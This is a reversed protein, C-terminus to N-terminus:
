SELKKAAEEILYAEIEDGEKIDNFNEIGIGCELGVVVERADDKLRKLSAIRGEYVITGDRTLRIKASRRIVGDEVVCGAINGVKSVKFVQKVRARGLYKETKVPELLGEITKKINDLVEYIISHIRIEIGEQEALKQAKGEATVNFGLIVARSAQALIVDSETIGGTAQHLIKVTVENTSLKKLSDVLAEVSGAVDAKVVLPLEHTEGASIQKQLEELTLKVSKGLKEAREKAQRTEVVKKVDRENNVAFLEDGAAPTADLGLIEVPKSPGAEEVLTGDAQMMARVRGYTFGSVVYDGRRLIGGQVLVTAVVGRGKELRSEIITGRGLGSFNGKLEKVEATLLIMELLQDIGVGSKASTNVCIVDGGWEEPVLGHETLSRKVKEPDAQPKDIKNVAVIIPVEAAKAHDIAEITQPMIGDDAAVVLIVIDTVKAGRARMQTFAAHGPTDIFTINGKPLRVEYAGIHQTIGGAEGETVKTKRITDLISTKGHDVHGMVTVVPARPKRDEVKAEGPHSKLVEEEKFATHVVEYGFEGAVLTATDVDLTQNATAMVGLAMLKKIIESSKIGMAQSLSSVTIGKEVRIVKKEAKTETLLTKKFEKKLVRKRRGQQLGPEFVREVSPEWDETSETTAFKKLGGARRIDELELEARSRKKRPGKKKTEEKEEKEGGLIGSPIPSIEPLGEKTAEPQFSSEAKLPVKLTSEKKTPSEAKAAAEEKEGIKTEETPKARRRIITGKVRKEIVVKKDDTREM